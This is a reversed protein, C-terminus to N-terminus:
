SQISINNFKSHILKKQVVFHGLKIYIHIHTHTHTHTHTYEKEDEKGNHNIM